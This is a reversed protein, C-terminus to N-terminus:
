PLERYNADNARRIAAVMNPGRQDDADGYGWKKRLWNGISGYGSGAIWAAFGATSKPGWDNDLTTTPKGTKRNGINALKQLGRCDGLGDAINAATVTPYSPAAPAPAVVAPQAPAAAAALVRQIFAWPDIFGGGAVQVEIHTCSGQTAGTTGEASIIQGQSVTAGIAPAQAGPAHAYSVFYDRGEFSVRTTIQYGFGHWSAPVLKGTVTGGLIAPAGTGPTKSHSFDQGRHKRGNGRDAGFYGGGPRASDTYFDSIASM